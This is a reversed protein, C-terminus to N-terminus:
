WFKDNNASVALSYASSVLGISNRDALNLLNALVIIGGGTEGVIRVYIIRKLADYFFGKSSVFSKALHDASKVSKNLGRKGVGQLIYFPIVGYEVFVGKVATISNSEFDQKRTIYISFEEKGRSSEDDLSM